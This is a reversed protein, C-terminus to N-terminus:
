EVKLLTMAVKGTGRTWEYLKRNGSASSFWNQINTQVFSHQRKNETIVNYAITGAPITTNPVKYRRASVACKASTITLGQSLVIIYPERTFDLVRFASAHKSVLFQNSLSSVLTFDLVSGAMLIRFMHEPMLFEKAFTNAEIEQRRASIAEDMDGNDCRFGHQGDSYLTPTHELFHHGLEHAFTFNIRGANNIYTNILIGRKEGRFLLAGSLKPDNPLPKCSVKIGQGKAIDELHTAPADTIGMAELVRKAKQAPTSAACM